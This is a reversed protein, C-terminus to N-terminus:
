PQHAAVRSIHTAVAQWHGDRKVFVDTFRYTGSTDKDKYKSKETEVGSVIATDGYVRVKMDDIKLSEFILVRNKLDADFQTKSMLEGSETAATWDPAVFRNMADLDQKIWADAWQHEIKVIVDEAANGSKTATGTKDEARIAISSVMVCTLLFLIRKM